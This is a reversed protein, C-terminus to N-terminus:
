KKPEISNKYQKIKHNVFKGRPRLKQAKKMLKLALPRHNNEIKLAIDRFFNFAQHKDEFLRPVNLLEMYDASHVGLQDFDDRSLLDSLQPYHEAIQLFCQLNREETNVTLYLADEQSEDIVQYNSAVSEPLIVTPTHNLLAMCKFWIDDANDALAMFAESDTVRVDLSGHPYFVGGYGVPLLCYDASMPYKNNMLRWQHYSNLTLDSKRSILRGRSAIIAKPNQQHARIFADIVGPPIIIDDDFTIVHANPYRSLTPVLKKYSKYNPCFEVKFRDDELETLSTPLQQASIENEDLWLIIKDVGECQAKLSQIVQHVDAIRKGYSTLSVIIPLTEPSAQEESAFTSM